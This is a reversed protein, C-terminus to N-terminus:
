RNRTFMIQRIEMSEAMNQEGNEHILDKRLNSIKGVIQLGSNKFLM